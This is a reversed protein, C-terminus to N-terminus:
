EEKKKGPSKTPMRLVKITSTAELFAVIRFIGNWEVSSCAGMIECLINSNILFNLEPFYTTKCNKLGKIFQGIGAPPPGRKNLYFQTKM